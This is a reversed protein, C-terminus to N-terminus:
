PLSLFGNDQNGDVYNENIATVCDNIQSATLTSPCGGLIGNAEDLVEQVTMGFCPSAPQVVRLDALSIPNTSFDPIASDFGVNLSLALVQGALVGAETSTPDTHNQSLASPTGGAPLFNRIAEASTFVATPGGCDGGGITVGDPFAAGFNEALFAGPNNGNPPAGWGGQTQTRFGVPECTYIPRCFVPIGCSGVTLDGHAWAVVSVSTGPVSLFVRSAMCLEDGPALGVDELAVALIHDQVPPAHGINYFVNGVTPDPSWVFPFDEFDRILALQSTNIVHESTIMFRIYLETETNAMYLGGVFSGEETVLPVQTIPGCIEGAPAASASILLILAICVLPACRSHTTNMCTEGECMCNIQLNETLFLTL